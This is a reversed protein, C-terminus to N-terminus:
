HNEETMVADLRSEANEMVEDFKELIEGPYSELVKTSLSIRNRYEDIEAIAVKISQGIAFIKTLSDIQVGSVERIHLLGSVGGLDVFVGYPKISAVRGEMLTGQALRSMASARMANRQSLVLKKEDPNVELFSATLLQGILSEMDDQNQLHSRPIFGRLGEIDGTVGGKNVGSIRIQVSTGAESMAAINTWAEKIELQRRSLTVQGDEDQGRVIMFEMEEQLPLAEELTQNGRLIVEKESVFALSKGGIDVYAGSNDYECVKGRVVQGKDFQFDYKDLASAFDDMSFSQGAKSSTSKSSM